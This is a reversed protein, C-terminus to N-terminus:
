VTVGICALFSLIAITGVFAFYIWRVTPRQIIQSALASALILQSGM